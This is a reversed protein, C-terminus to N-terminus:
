KNDGVETPWVATDPMKANGSAVETPISSDSALLEDVTVFTYGQQQLQAIIKPLAELDQDRNGGGDHMLIISGSTVGRLANSVITDAGPRKWDESDQTWTVSCSILGKTKLWTSERFNGGPPRLLTTEVGTADKISSFSSTLEQQITADDLTTLNPHSDTHSAIQNGGDIVAKALDPYQRVNQGITFFTAKIGYQHLIDLYRQTYESPGDDFTLAVLKQGNAPSCNHLTVICDKVDQTTVDATKGSESGTRTEVTGMQGWQSVYAVSGAGGKMTLKPQITQTTSTYPETVDAGDSIEVTDGAHVQWSSDQDQSLETGNVTATYPTGGGERIVEGTVDLYNGATVKIQHRQVLDAITSSPSEQYVDGNITVSVPRTLWLFAGGAAMLVLVVFAVIVPMRNSKRSSEREAKAITEPSAHSGYRRSPIYGVPDTSEAPWSRRGKAHTRRRPVYVPQVADHAVTSIDGFGGDDEDAEGDPADSEGDVDDTEGEDGDIDADDVSPVADLEENESTKKQGDASTAVEEPMEHNEKAAM